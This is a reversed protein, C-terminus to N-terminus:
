QITVVCSQRVPAAPPLPAAKFVHNNYERVAACFKTYTDRSMEISVNDKGYNTGRLWITNKGDTTRLRDEDRAPRLNSALIIGNSARFKRTDVRQGYYDPQCGFNTGRHSQSTVKVLVKDFGAVDVAQCVIVKKM